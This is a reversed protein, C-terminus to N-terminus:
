NQGLRHLLAREIEKLQDEDEMKQGYLDRVYFVDAIQDGKTAIKAIKIDLKLNFLTHTILYLLGVRDDAFVEILTFFDSSQNDVIVKAPRSPKRQNSFLSLASKQAIRYDLSLKGRLTHDLDDRVKQWIESSHIPDLPSTVKFIDVVTGDLWTYIHASLININNLSLVGAMDSFLGPRDKALFLIEWCNELDEEATELLFANDVHRRFKEHLAQVLPIHRAIERPPTNLLYRPSMVKFYQDLDEANIKGGVQRRVQARTAKVRRSADASALEGHELIHMLKFFLEQVLNAIWDNWARPGTARSDAWTLLYLMKLRDIRGITRACQVVAKEDNLDRRTATEVLLLHNKVLFLVDEAASGDYDFRKLINRTIATGRLAHGKGIKGIDHFLGALFLREQDPLDSFVDLLIIEKEEAISKLYRVTQLVHRGVPYIHYADFQVRDKIQGLEPIFTELFGTESMQDLIDAADPLRMISLFAGVAASSKRFIDDILFLFERVLRRSEMSLPSRFLASKLFIEVLLTPNSIIATASDFNLENQHVHLGAPLSQLQHERKPTYKEPLHTSLFSRHISKVSAMSAHVKGMFQEVALFGKENQFGLTRAIKEQHDFGLRDNKRNSLQHLHNRVLWIFQLNRDLERYENHSLKGSYELDRPIRLQFLTRSLWLIHHYDRLGGIGEKLNPELLYSADGYKIMRITDQDKLWRGFAGGKKSLVKRNFTEMLSLFLPSDGCIFRADMVSTLVQFDDKSLALCDKISRIGYGLDLGLDWLPFFIEDALNKAEPPIKSGFLIMIDIDSRLALEKRGYGGVAVFAFPKKQKFLGQGVKSEQLSRRFYHDMMETYSEHFAESIRGSSFLYVLRVRSEKLEKYPSSMKIEDQGHSFRFPYAEV